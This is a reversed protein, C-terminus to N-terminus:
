LKGREEEIKRKVENITQRQVDGLRQNYYGSSHLDDKARSYFNALDERAILHLKEKRKDHTKPPEVEHKALIANTLEVLSHFVKECAISGRKRSKFEGELEEVKNYEDIGEELLNEAKRTRESPSPPERERMETTDIQSPSYNSAGISNRASSRTYSTEIVSVEGSFSITFPFKYVRIM